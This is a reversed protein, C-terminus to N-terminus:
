VREERRLGKEFVFLIFSFCDTEAVILPASLGVPVNVVEYTTSAIVPSTSSALDPKALPDTFYAAFSEVVCAVIEDKDLGNSPKFNDLEVNIPWTPTFLSIV